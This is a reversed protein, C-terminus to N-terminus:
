FRYAATLRLAGLDFYRDSRRFDTGDPNDLIFPNTAPAPGASRVRYGDDDLRTLLYEVGFTLRDTFRREVGAGVQHGNAYQNGNTTFTNVANSTEYTNDIRARAFGATLYALTNDNEGFTWGIRGRLGALADVKRLMTYYAPTTSYATVADRVDNTSVELVVGYVMNGSQWDYGGRLGWDAGGSNPQCGDAPTAGNAVGNCTGPSFADDGAATRVTDDFSGDLDTDFLFRDDSNDKLAHGVHGGVYGGTWPQLSQASAGSTGFALLAAAVSVPLLAKM